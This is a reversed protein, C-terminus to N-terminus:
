RSMVLKALHSVATLGCQRDWTGNGNYDLYWDHTNRFVGIKSMTTTVSAYGIKRTSNYGGNNYVQLVVSYTGPMTYTHSAYKLSSGAPQFRWSDNRIGSNSEGGMLVISGDPMVVSSHAYRGLWGSSANVRTWTTGNNTSRWTDNEYGGGGMLVISSDPMVVTGHVTEEQGVPIRTQLRGRQERIQRGGRIKRLVLTMGVVSFSLVEM